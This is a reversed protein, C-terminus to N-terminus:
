VDSVNKNLFISAVTHMYIYIYSVDFQYKKIAADVPFSILGVFGFLFIFLSTHRRFSMTHYAM